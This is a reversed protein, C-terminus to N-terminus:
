EDSEAAGGVIAVIEYFSREAPSSDCCKHLFRVWARVEFVLRDHYAICHVSEHRECACGAASEQSLHEGYCSGNSLRGYFRADHVDKRTLLCRGSCLSAEVIMDAKWEAERAQRGMMGIAHKLEAHVVASFNALEHGDQPGVDRQDCGDRGRVHSCKVIKLVKNACFKLHTRVGCGMSDDQISVDRAKGQQFFFRLVHRAANGKARM